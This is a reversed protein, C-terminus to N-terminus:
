TMLIPAMVNEGNLPSLMSDSNYANVVPLRIYCIIPRHRSVNLCDDDLVICKEVCDFIEVPVSIYDILSQFKGDYSVYTTDVGTCKHSTNVSIVNSDTCFKHLLLDRTRPSNLDIRANFDGLFIM